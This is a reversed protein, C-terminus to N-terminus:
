KKKPKWASSTKGDPFLDISSPSVDPCSHGAELTVNDVLCIETLEFPLVASDVINAGGTEFVKIGLLGGNSGLSRSSRDRNTQM